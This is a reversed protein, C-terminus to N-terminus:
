FPPQPLFHAADGTVSHSMIVRLRRLSVDSTNVPTPASLPSAKGSSPPRGEEIM